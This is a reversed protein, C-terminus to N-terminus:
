SPFSLIKEATRGHVLWWVKLHMLVVWCGVDGGRGWTNDQWLADISMKVLLYNDCVENLQM